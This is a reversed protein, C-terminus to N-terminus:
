ALSREARDKKTGYTESSCTNRTSKEAQQEAAFSPVEGVAEVTKPLTSCPKGPSRPHFSALVPGNENEDVPAASPQSRPSTKEARGNNPKKPQPQTSDVSPAPTTVDQRNDTPAVDRKMERVKSELEYVFRLNRYYRVVGADAVYFQRRMSVALNSPTLDSLQLGGLRVGTLNLTFAISFFAMAATMVWRSQAAHRELGPLWGPQAVAVPVGAVVPVAPMSDAVGSTSALIRAMM